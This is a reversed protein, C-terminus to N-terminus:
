MGNRLAAAMREAVAAKAPLGAALFAVALREMETARWRMGWRRFPGTVTALAERILKM